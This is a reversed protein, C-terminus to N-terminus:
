RCIETWLILMLVQFKVQQPDDSTNHTKSSCLIMLVKSKNKAMKVDRVNILHDGSTAQGVRLLGYYM